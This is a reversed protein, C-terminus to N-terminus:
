LNFHFLVLGIVKTYTGSKRLNTTSSMTFQPVDLVSNVSSDRLSKTKLIDTSCDRNPHRFRDFNRDENIQDQSFSSSDPMKQNMLCDFPNFDGNMGFSLSEARNDSRLKTKALKNCEEKSRHAETIVHDNSDVIHNSNRNSSNYVETSREQRSHNNQEVIPNRTENTSEYKKECSSHTFSENPASTRIVFSERKQTSRSRLQPKSSLSITCPELNSSTQQERRSKPNEQNCQIYDENEQRNTNSSFVSDRTILNNKSKTYSQTSLAISHSATKLTDFQKDKNNSNDSSISSHTSSRGIMINNLAMVPINEKIKPASLPEETCSFRQSEQIKEVMCNEFQFKNQHWVRTIPNEFVTATQAQQLLITEACQGYIEESKATGRQNMVEKQSLTASIDVGLDITDVEQQHDHYYQHHHEASAPQQIDESRDVELGDLTIVMDQATPRPHQLLKEKVVRLNEQVNERITDEITNGLYEIRERFSRGHFKRNYDKFGQDDERVSSRLYSLNMSNHLDSDNDKRTETNSSRQSQALQLTLPVRDEKASKRKKKPIPNPLLVGSHNHMSFSGDCETMIQTGQNYDTAVIGITSLDNTVFPKNEKNEISFQINQSIESLSVRSSTLKTDKSLDNADVLKKASEIQQFYKSGSNFKATEDTIKTAPSLMQSHISNEKDNFPPSLRRFLARTNDM